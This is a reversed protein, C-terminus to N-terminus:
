RRMTVMRRTLQGFPTTLEYYLIGAPLARDFHIDAEHYGAPYNQSLRWLERGTADFVRLQADCADPLVFGIVTGDTFPNPRNQLLQLGAAGTPDHLGTAQGGTFTLEMGGPVQDASWAQPALAKESLRLVASLKVGGQLARFRLAFVPTGDDLTAGYPDVWLSRIEGLGALRLGFNEAATLGLADSQPEVQLFQLYTPDVQLAFQYAALQDFQGARFLVLLDKGAELTQDEVLWRLPSISAPKLLPNASADVDGVKIGYFNQNTVPGAVGVLTRKEPIPASFPNPPPNYGPFGPGPDPTPVFRWPKAIFFAIANSNNLVAQRIISADLNTVSNSLDVDAAILKYPDTIPVLLAVHKQVALADAATVGNLPLAPPATKTPTIMLNAGSGNLGYLGDALTPGDLDTADGSLAVMAQAVGSVDDGEWILKGTIGQCEGVSVSFSCAAMLGNVDTVKWFITTTGTVFVAGNLSGNGSGSSAGGYQYSSDALGCNDFTQPDLAGNIAIYNCDNGGANVSVDAPCVLKPPITDRVRIIQIQSSASNGCSDSLSWTRIIDAQTGPVPTVVDSYTAQLNSSCNDTENTVDGTVSTDANYQCNEDIYVSIDPPATFTPPMNDVVQITQVATASNDCDDTATWQRVLTYRHPCNGPTLTQGNYTVTVLTDCNDTATPEAPEPIQDCQVSIDGPPDTFVPAQTDSVTISHTSLVTVPIVNYGGDSAEIVRPSGVITVPGSDDCHLPKFTLRLLLTDDPLTVGYPMDNEDLWSYVFTDNVMGVLPTTGDIVTPDIGMLMFLDPNWAVSFQLTGTNEFGTVSVIDVTFKEMCEVSDPSEVLLNIGPEPMVTFIDTASNSCGNNDTYTYTITHMGIGALFPNITNGSVGPGSYSGGPPAGGTLLVSTETVTAEDDGLVLTVVPLPNITVAVSGTMGATCNTSTRTAIVTYTGATTQNGFSIASGTGNVPSGTPNGNVYLQYTVGTESGSLGVAVGDGGDCYAGGGTVEFVQLMDITVTASGSLDNATAPCYTDFLTNITYTTTGNPTVTVTIPSTSGGFQTGGSLTGSWPGAGTVVITLQASQGPCIITDGSISGTPRARVIVQKECTSSCGNADTITLTLTFSGANGSNVTVNQGNAPSSIAGNGSISWAYSSMNAPASYQFGNNNSCVASDGLINCVPLPHVVVNVATSTYDCGYKTLTLLYNGADGTQVNNISAAPGAPPTFGGGQKSWQYTAGSVAASTLTLNLMQGVCLPSNSAAVPPSLNVSANLDLVGFTGGSVGSLVRGRQYPDSGTATNPVPTEWNGSLYQVIGCVTRDFSSGEDSGNWTVTMNLINATGSERAVIWMKKVADDTVFGNCGPIEASFGNVVRVSFTTSPFDPAILIPTYSGNGVPFTANPNVQSIIMKGSGNTEVYGTAGSAGTTTALAALTLNFTGLQLKGGLFNLNKGITLHQALIAMGAGTKNMTINPLLLPSSGSLTSNGSGVFVIRFAGAGPSTLTGNQTFNGGLNLTLSGGAACGKFSGTPDITWNGDVSIIINAAGNTGVVNGAAIQVNGAILHSHNIADGFRIEGGGSNNIILNGAVKLNVEFTGNSASTSAYSLNGYTPHTGTFGTLNGTYLYSSAANLTLASATLNAPVAGGATTNQIVKGTASVTTVAVQCTFTGMDLAGDVTLTSGAATFNIGATLTVTHSASITIQDGDAPVGNNWTAPSSWNGSVVSVTVKATAPAACCVLALLFFWSRFVPPFFCFSTDTQPRHSM